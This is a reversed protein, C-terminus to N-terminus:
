NSFCWEINKDDYRGWKLALGEMRLYTQPRIFRYTSKEGNSYIHDRTIAIYENNWRPSQYPSTRGELTM